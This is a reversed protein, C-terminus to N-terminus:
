PTHTEHAQREALVEAKHRERLTLVQEHIDALAFIARAYETEKDQLLSYSKMVRHYDIRRKEARKDRKTM